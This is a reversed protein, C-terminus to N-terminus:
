TAVLNEVMEQTIQDANAHDILEDGAIQELLFQDYPKDSNFSKIVYDRYKWAVQRIPDASVGGESDAYGAVDLWYRGWREGYHHSELLHDVMQSFWDSETTEHWHRWESVSPPMGILDVYARRILTDRNAAPSFTLGAHQLRFEIFDDISAADPDKRPTRFAWHQRDEDSVLPDPKTTAVDPHIDEVPAGAAIWTRLTKVESSAPRRVFYKLLLESPPCAQSEIRRIMLSADPDGVVLGPGSRGGAMMSKPTRVDFGGRQQRAGHCTVCRLLVIPLVDHQNLKKEEAM